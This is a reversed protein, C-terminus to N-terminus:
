EISRSTATKTESAIISAFATRMHTQPKQLIVTPNKLPQTSVFFQNPYSYFTRGGNHMHFTMQIKIGRVFKNYRTFLSVTGYHARLNGLATSYM